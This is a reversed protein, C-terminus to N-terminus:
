FSYSMMFVKSSFFASTVIGLLTPIACFYYKKQYAIELGKIQRLIRVVDSDQIQHLVQIFVINIVEEKLLIKYALM